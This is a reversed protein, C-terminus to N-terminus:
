KKSLKLIAKCLRRLSGVRIETKIEYKLGKTRKLLNRAVRRLYDVEHQQLSVKARDLQWGRKSKM